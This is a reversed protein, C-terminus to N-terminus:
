YIIDNIFEIINQSALIEDAELDAEDSNIVDSNNILLQDADNLMNLGLEKDEMLASVIKYALEDDKTDSSVAVSEGGWYFDVPAKVLITNSNGFVTDPLIYKTFWITGVCALTKKNKNNDLLLDYWNNDWMENEYISSAALEEFEEFTINTEDLANDYMLKIEDISGFLSVKGKSQKYVANCTNAMTEMDCFYKEYIENPDSTGFYKEALDARIQIYGPCVEFPFEKMEGEANVGVNEFMKYTKSFAKKNFGLEKKSLLEDQEFDMTGTEYIILDANEKVAVKDDEATYSILNVDEGDELELYDLIIDMTDAYQNPYYITFIDNNKKPVVVTNDHEVEVLKDIKSSLTSEYESINATATNLTKEYGSLTTNYNTILDDYSDIKKQYDAIVAEYNKVMSEYEALDVKSGFLNDVGKNLVYYVGLAVAACFILICMTSLFTFFTILPTSLSVKLKKPMQFESKVNNVAPNPAEVTIRPAVVVGEPLEVENDEDSDEESDELEADDKIEAKEDKDANKKLISTKKRTKEEKIEEVEISNNENNEKEQNIKKRAM